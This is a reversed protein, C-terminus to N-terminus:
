HNRNVDLRGTASRVSAPPGGVIPRAWSRPRL